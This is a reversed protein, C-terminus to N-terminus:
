SAKRARRTKAPEDAAKPRELGELRMGLEVRESVKLPVRCTNEDREAHLARCADDLSDNGAKPETKHADRARMLDKAHDWAREIVHADDELQHLQEITLAADLDGDVVHIENVAHQLLTALGTITPLLADLHEQPTPKGVEEDIDLGNALDVEEWVLQWYGLHGYRRRLESLKALVIAGDEPQRKTKTVKVEALREVTAPTAKGERVKRYAPDVKGTRDMEEVVAALEPDAEAAAVVADVKDLTKSSYGTGEAAKDKARSPHPLKVGKGGEAMRQKAKEKELRVRAQRITYAETPTFNQRAVNEDYEIRLREEDTADRVTAAITDWGLERAAWLRRQGALLNNDKDIAIPHLLGLDRMSAVLDSLDGPHTRFRPGVKVTDIDVLTVTADRETTM